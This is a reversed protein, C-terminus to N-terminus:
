PEATKAPRELVLPEGSIDLGTAQQIRAVSTALQGVARHFGFELTLLNRLDM